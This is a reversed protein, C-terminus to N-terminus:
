LSREKCDHCGFRCSQPIKATSNCYRLVCAARYSCTGFVEKWECPVNRATTAASDAARPFRRQQFVIAFYVHQGQPWCTGFMENRECHLRFCSQAIKGDLDVIAFCLGSCRKGNTAATRPLRRQQIVIAFCVHQGQSCTGFM